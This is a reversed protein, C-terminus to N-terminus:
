NVREWNPDNELRKLDKPSVVVLAEGNYVFPELNNRRVFEKLFQIIM